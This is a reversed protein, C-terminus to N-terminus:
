HLPLCLRPNAEAERQAPRYLGPDLIDTLNETSDAGRM